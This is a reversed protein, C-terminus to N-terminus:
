PWTNDETPRRKSNGPLERVRTILALLDNVIAWGHLLALGAIVAIAIKVPDASQSTDLSGVANFAGITFLLTLPLHLLLVACVVRIKRHLQGRLANVLDARFPIPKVVLLQIDSRQTTYYFGAAVGAISATSILASASETATM